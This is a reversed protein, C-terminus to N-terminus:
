QKTRLVEYAHSVVWDLRNKKDDWIENNTSYILHSYNNNECWIVLKRNPSCSKIFGEITIRGSEKSPLLRETSFGFSNLLIIDNGSNITGDNNIYNFSNASDRIVKYDLGTVLSLAITWCDNKNGKSEKYKRVSNIIGKKSTATPIDM